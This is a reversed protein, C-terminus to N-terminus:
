KTVLESYLDIYKAYQTERNFMKVARARCADQNYHKKDTIVSLIASALSSVNGKDVVIGTQEDVAEPSGGTRYTVVPTGCSLAEINVTPFSDNHTPNVFASAENYLNVLEQVDSTRTIGIIGDPLSKIQKESLGVLTIGIEDPLLERLKIFDDLGKYQPWVNSVGLIMQEKETAKTNYFISTDVGNNIVKVRYKSLFSQRVYSALWESVCVITLRDAVATLLSKKLKFNRESRDFLANSHSCHTCYERWKFCGFNEFHSCHGTFAWCDHFTWVIQTDVTALYEFLVQYNLWHDHINHLHIVDPSIEKIQAILKKTANQSGLGESDFFRNKTYHAYVDFKNGVKILSSKSSNMMRGYAIYSEWGNQMASIGIGEAIKGTSGWNATVNIQLLKKM